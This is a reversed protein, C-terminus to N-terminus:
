ASAPPCALATELRAAWALLSRDAGIPADLLLGVPLGDRDRGAPLTLSPAGILTAMAANRTVVEMTDHRTGGAEMMTFQAPHPPQVPSSPAIVLDIGHTGFLAGYRAQLAARLYKVVQERQGATQRALEPLTQMLGRVDPSSLRDAFDAFSQDLRTEAFDTWYDLAEGFVLPFGMTSEIEAYGQAPLDIVEALGQRALLDLAARFRDEVAACYGPLTDAPLGLRVPRDPLSITASDDPTIVADVEALDAVCAALIGITDRTQSLHLVGGAPYRGTSPRLGAVGCFAAPIRVSAGTDTGLAVPVLGCAVAVGSGGSSGGATRDPDHPNRVAGFAANDSTTGFALEHMNLKAPFWAGAARLRAVVPADDAPLNARLAGSGATTPYPLVDINDKVGIPIGALPGKRADAPPTFDSAIIACLSDGAETDALRATAAALGDRAVEDRFRSLTVPAFRPTTKDKM